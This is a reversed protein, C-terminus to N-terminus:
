EPLDFGTGTETQISLRGAPILSVGSRSSVGHGRGVIQHVVCGVGDANDNDLAKFGTLLGYTPQHLGVFSDPVRCFIGNRDSVLNREAIDSVAVRDDLIAVVDSFRDRGNALAAADVDM